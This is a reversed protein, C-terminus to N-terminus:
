DQSGPRARRKPRVQIVAEAPREWEPVDWYVLGNRVEAMAVREAKSSAIREFEEDPLRPIAGRRLQKARLGAVNVFLFRSDIPPAPETPEQQEVVPAADTETGLEPTPESDLRDESRLDEDRMLM